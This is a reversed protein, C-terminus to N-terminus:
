QRRDPNDGAVSLSGPLDLVVLGFKTGSNDPDIAVIRQHQRSGVKLETKGSQDASVEIHKKDGDSCTLGQDTETTSGVPKDHNCEIVTGYRKM